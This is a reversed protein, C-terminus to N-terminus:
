KYIICTLKLKVQKQTYWPKVTDTIVKRKISIKLSNNFLIFTTKM